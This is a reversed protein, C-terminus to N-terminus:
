LKYGPIVDCIIYATTPRYPVVTCLASYSFAAYGLGFQWKIHVAAFKLTMISFHTHLTCLPSSIEWRAESGHGKAM